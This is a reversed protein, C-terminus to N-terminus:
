ASFCLKQEYSTRRPFRTVDHPISFGGQYLKVPLWTSLMANYASGPQIPFLYLSAYASSNTPRLALSLCTTGFDDYHPFLLDVLTLLSHLLFSGIHNPLTFKGPNTGAAHLCIINRSCPLGTTILLCVQVAICASM